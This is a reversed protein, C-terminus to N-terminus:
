GPWDAASGGCSRHGSLISMPRRMRRCRLPPPPPRRRRDAHMTLQGAPTTQVTLATLGGSRVAAAFTHGPVLLPQRTVAKKPQQVTKAHRVAPSIPHSSNNSRSTPSISPIAGGSEPNGQKQGLVLIFGKDNKDVLSGLRSGLDSIEQHQKTALNDLNIHIQKLENLSKELKSM